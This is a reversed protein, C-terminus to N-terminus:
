QEGTYKNIIAQLRSATTKGFVDEVTLGTEGSKKLVSYWMGIEVHTRFFIFGNEGSSKNKRIADKLSYPVLGQQGYYETKSFELYYSRNLEKFIDIIVQKDKGSLTKTSAEKKESQALVSASLSFLIITLFSFMFQKKM